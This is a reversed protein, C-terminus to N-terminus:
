TTYTMGQDMGRYAMCVYAARPHNNLELRLCHCNCMYANLHDLKDNLYTHTHQAYTVQTVAIGLRCYDTGVFMRNVCAFMHNVCTQSDSGGNVVSVLKYNIPAYICAHMSEHLILCTCANFVMNARALSCTTNAHMRTHSYAHAHENTEQTRACCPRKFGM